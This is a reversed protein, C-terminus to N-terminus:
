SFYTAESWFFHVNASPRLFQFLLETRVKDSKSHHTGEKMLRQTQQGDTEM